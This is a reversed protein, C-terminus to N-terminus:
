HAVSLLWLGARGEELNGRQLPAVELGAGVRHGAPHVWHEVLGHVVGAPVAVLSVPDVRTPRCPVM